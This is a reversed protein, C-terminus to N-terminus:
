KTLILKGMKTERLQYVEERHLIRVFPRGNLLFLSTWEDKAPAGQKPAAADSQGRRRSKRPQSPELEETCTETHSM